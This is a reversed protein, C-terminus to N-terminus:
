RIRGGDWFAPMLYTRFTPSRFEAHLEVSVYPNPHAAADAASLEFVIECPSYAPTGECATQAASPLGLGFIILAGAVIGYQMGSGM